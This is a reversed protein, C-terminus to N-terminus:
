NRWKFLAAMQQHTIEFLTLEKNIVGAILIQLLFFESISVQNKSPGPIKNRPALVPWPSFINFDDNAAPWSCSFESKALAGNGTPVGSACIVAKSPSLV